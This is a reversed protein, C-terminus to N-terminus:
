GALSTSIGDARRSQTAHFATEGAEMALGLPVRVSIETGGMPTSVISAIGNVLSARERISVLGLGQGNMATDVDFGAGRDRVTLQIDDTLRRLQVEFRQVGSYKIANNLSEQLVRFLCLSVDRPLGSPIDEAAFDVSVKHREAVERCFSRCAVVLGLYELKSSHLRHSITQVEIGIDMLRKQLGKIRGGTDHDSGLMSQQLRDLDVSLMAIRQNIDDHLERAIRTREQEQAEILRRSVGALVEEAQKRETIDAFVSLACPEGAFDILEASGLTTRARGDKRRIRVEIGQV